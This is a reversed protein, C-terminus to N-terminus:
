QSQELIHKYGISNWYKQLIICVVYFITDIGDIENLPKKLTSSKLIHLIEGAGAM